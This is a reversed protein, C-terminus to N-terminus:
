CGGDTEDNCPNEPEVVVPPDDGGGCAIACLVLGGIIMPVIWANKRPADAEGAYEEEIIVPGGAFAPQCSLLAVTLLLKKM